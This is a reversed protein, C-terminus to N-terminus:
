QVSSAHSDQPIMCLIALFFVRKAKEGMQFSEVLRSSECFMDWFSVEASGGKEPAAKAPLVLEGPACEKPVRENAKCESDDLVSHRSPNSGRM